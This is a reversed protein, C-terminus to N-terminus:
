HPLRRRVCLLLLLLPAKDSLRSHAAWWATHSAAKTGRTGAAAAACRRAAAARAECCGWGVVGLFYLAAQPLQVPARHLELDLEEARVGVDRRRTLKLQLPSRQERKKPTHAKAPRRRREFLM